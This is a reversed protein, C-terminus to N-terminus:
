RFLLLAERCVRDAKRVEDFRKWDVAHTLLSPM